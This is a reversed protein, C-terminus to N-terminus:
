PAHHKINLLNRLLPLGEEINEAAGETAATLIQIYNIDLKSEIIALM